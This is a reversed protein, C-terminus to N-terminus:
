SYYIGCFTFDQKKQPHTKNVWHNERNKTVSPKDFYGQIFYKM